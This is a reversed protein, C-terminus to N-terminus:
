HQEEFPLSLVVGIMYWVTAADVLEIRLFESHKDLEIPETRLEFRRGEATPEITTYGLTEQHGALYLDLPRESEGIALGTVTLERSSKDYSGYVERLFATRRIELAVDGVIGGDEDAEIDLILENRPNLLSTVEFDFFGEQIEGLESDNLRILGDGHIAEFVLWAREDEDLQGPYGFRRRFRVKGAFDPLGADKWRAPMKMRRPSPLPAENRSSIPECEWPGRLRIRHPYSPNM